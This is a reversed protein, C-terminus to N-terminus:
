GGIEVLLVALIVAMAVIGINLKLNPTMLFEGLWCM